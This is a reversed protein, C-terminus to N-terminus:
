LLSHLRGIESVRALPMEFMDAIEPLSLKKLSIAKAVRTEKEQEVARSEGAKVLDEVIECVTQVGGQDEKFYRMRDALVNNYMEDASTCFFDHM